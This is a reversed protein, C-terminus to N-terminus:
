NFNSQQKVGNNAFLDWWENEVEFIMKYIEEFSSNESVKGTDILYELSDMYEAAFMSEDEPEEFTVLETKGNELCWDYFNYYHYKELLLKNLEKM